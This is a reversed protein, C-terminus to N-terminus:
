QMRANRLLALGGMVYTMVVVLVLCCVNYPMSFDPVPLVVPFSHGAEMQSIGAFFTQMSDDTWLTMWDRDWLEQAACADHACAYPAMSAHM